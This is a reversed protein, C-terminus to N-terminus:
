EFEEYTEMTTILKDLDSYTQIVIKCEGLYKRIRKYWEKAIDDQTIYIDKEKYTYQLKAYQEQYEHDEILEFIYTTAHTNLSVIWIKGSNDIAYGNINDDSFM